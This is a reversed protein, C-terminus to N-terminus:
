MIARDRYKQRARMFQSTSLGLFSALHATPVQTELGPHTKLFSAYSDVPECRVHRERRERDRLARDNHLAAHLRVLEPYESALRDVEAMPIRGYCLETVAEVRELNGRQTHLNAVVFDESRAFYQTVDRGDDTHIFVRAIGSLVLLLHQESNGGAHVLTGEEVTRSRLQLALEHRCGDSCTVIDSLRDLFLFRNM